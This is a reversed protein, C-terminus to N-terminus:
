LEKTSDKPQTSQEMVGKSSMKKRFKRISQIPHNRDYSLCVVNKMHFSIAKGPTTSITDTSLAKVPPLPMTTEITTEVTTDQTVTPRARDDIGDRKMSFRKIADESLEVLNKVTNYAVTEQSVFDSNAELKDRPALSDFTHNEPLTVGRPMACSMYDGIHDFWSKEDIEINDEALAAVLEPNTIPVGEDNKECDGPAREPVVWVPEGNPKFLDSDLSTKPANTKKKRMARASANLQSSEPMRELRADDSRKQARQSQVHKFFNKALDKNFKQGSKEDEKSGSSPIESSRRRRSDSSTHSNKKKPKDNKSGAREDNDSSTKANTNEASLSQNVQNKKKRVTTKPPDKEVKEKTVKRRIAKRERGPVNPSTATPDKLLNAQAPSPTSVAPLAIVTPLPTVTSPSPTKRPPVITPQPKSKPGGRRNQSKGEKRRRNDDNQRIPLNTTSKM